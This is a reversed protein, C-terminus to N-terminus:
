FQIVILRFEFRHVHYLFHMLTGMLHIVQASRPDRYSNPLPLRSLADTNANDNGEKFQVTYNM